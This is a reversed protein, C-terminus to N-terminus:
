SGTQQNHLMTRGREWLCRAILRAREEARQHLGARVDHDVGAARDSAVVLRHHQRLGHKEATQALRTLHM